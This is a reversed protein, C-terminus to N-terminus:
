WPPTQETNTLKALAEISTIPTSHTLNRVAKKATTDARLKAERLSNPIEEEVGKKDENLTAQVDKCVAALRELVDLGSPTFAIDNTEGVHIAACKEDFFSVLSLEPPSPQEDRWSHVSPVTGVSYDILCSAPSDPRAKYVNSLIQGGSYRARCAKRLIRAYGSKGSANDGYVVTLGIEKFSLTQNHALANVFQVERISKLRTPQGKKETRRIDDQSLPRASPIPQGSALLDHPSKCLLLCEEIQADSLSDCSMLLRLAHRQWLPQSQSWDLISEYASRSRTKARAWM